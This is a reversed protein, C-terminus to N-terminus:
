PTFVERNEQQEQERQLTPDFYFPIQSQNRCFSWRRGAQEWGLDGAPRLSMLLEYPNVDGWLYRTTPRYSFEFRHAALKTEVVLFESFRRVNLSAPLRWTVRGSTLFGDLDALTFVAKTSGEFHACIEAKALALRSQKM